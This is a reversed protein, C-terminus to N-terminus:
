LTYDEGIFAYENIVFEETNLDIYGLLFEPSVIYDPNGVGEWNIDYREDEKIRRIFSRMADKYCGAIILTNNQKWKTSPNERIVREINALEEETFELFSDAFNSSAVILGEELIKDGSVPTFHYFYRIEDNKTLNNVQEQIEEM